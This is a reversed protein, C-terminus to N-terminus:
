ACGNENSLAKKRDQIEKQMWLKYPHCKTYEVHVLHPQMKENVKQWLYSNKVQKGATNRWGNAQWRQPWGEHLSNSIHINDTFVTIDSPKQFRELAMWLAELIMQNATRGKLFCFGEKTKDIVEGGRVVQAEIVYGCWGDIPRTSKVNSELYIKVKKVFVGGTGNTIM